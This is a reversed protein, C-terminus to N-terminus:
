NSAYQKELEELSICNAQPPLRSIISPMGSAGQPKDQPPARGPQKTPVGASQLLKELPSQYKHVSQPAADPTQVSGSSMYQPQQGGVAGPPNHQFHISSTSPVNVNLFGAAAAAAQQSIIRARIAQAQSVDNRMLAMAYLRQQEAQAAAFAQARMQPLLHPPVPWSSAPVGQRIATMVQVYQQQLLKSMVDPNNGNLNGPNGRAYEVAQKQAGAEGINRQKDEEAISVVPISSGARRHKDDVSVNNKTMQRMVSTPMFANPVTTTSARQQTAAATTSANVGPMGGHSASNSAMLNALMARVANVDAPQSSQMMAAARQQNAAYQLNKLLAADLQSRALAAQLAVDQSATRFRPIEGTAASLHGASSRLHQQLLPNSSSAAGAGRIDELNNMDQQQAFKNLKNMLQAQQQPDGLPNGKSVQYSALQHHRSASTPQPSIGLQRLHDSANSTSPPAIAGRTAEWQFGKELDEAHVVGPLSASGPQEMPMPSSSQSSAFIKKLIPNSTTASATSVAASNENNNSDGPSASHPAAHPESKTTSFFRSLRSCPAPDTAVVNKASMVNEKLSDFDSTDLLGMIAAFEADSNPLKNNPLPSPIVSAERSKETTSSSAKPIPLEEVVEPSKAAEVTESKDVSPSTSGSDRSSKSDTSAVSKKVKDGAPQVMSAELRNAVSSKNVGAKQQAHQKGSLGDKKAKNGSGRKVNKREDDFGKLEIMDHMSTPGEEMWEPVKEETSLTSVMRNRNQSQADKHFSPKFTGDGAARRDTNNPQRSRTFVADGSATANKQFAPKFDNTATSNKLMFGAGSRWNGKNTGLREPETETKHPSPARCGSSFGRRQPSLVTSNGDFAEPKIKEKRRANANPRNEVGECVWRYELWKDPQFKGDENDFDTSLYSPRQMSLESKAIKLMEERDYRYENDLKQKGRGGISSGGNHKLEGGEAQSKLMIYM